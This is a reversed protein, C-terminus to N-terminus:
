MKTKIRQDKSLNKKSFLIQKINKKDGHIVKFTGFSTNMKQNPQLISNSQKMLYGALTEFGEKKIQLGFYQNFDDVDLSGSLKFLNSGKEGLIIEPTNPQDQSQIEGVLEEAIDEITILGIVSGFENVVFVMPVKKDQMYLLIDDVPFYESVYDAKNMLSGLKDSMKADLIDLVEVYGILDDGRLDFVPYRSYSTKQIQQIFEKVTSNKEFSYIEALPIMIEKAMTSGINMLRHTIDKEHMHFSLFYFIDERRIKMDGSFFQFIFRTLRSFLWGIPMLFYYFFFLPYYLYKLISLDFRKSLTKPLAESFVFITFFVIVELILSLVRAWVSEVNRLLNNLSITAAVITLNNGILCTSILSEKLHYLKYLKKQDGGVINLPNLGLLATESGSFFSSGLITSILIVIDFYM